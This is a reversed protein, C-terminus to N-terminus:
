SVLSRYYGVYGLKKCSLAFNAWERESFNAEQLAILDANMLQEELLRWAGPSGGTNLVLVRPQSSATAQVEPPGPNAAEGIRLGRLGGLQSNQLWSVKCPLNSM